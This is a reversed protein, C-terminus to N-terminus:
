NSCTGCPEYGKMIAEKESIISINHYISYCTPSSHYVESGLTTFVIVQSGEISDNVCHSCPRKDTLTSLPAPYSDVKIHFCLPNKHYKAGHETIYVKNYFGDEDVLDEISDGSGYTSRAIDKHYKENYDGHGNFLQIYGSNSQRVLSNEIIGFPLESVYSIIIVGSDDNNYLELHDITFEVDLNAQDFYTQLKTTVYARGFSTTIFYVGEEILTDKIYGSVKVSEDILELGASAADFYGVPSDFEFANLSTVGINQIPNSTLVNSFNQIQEITLSEGNSLENINQLKDVVGFEDFMYTDYSLEVCVQNLVHQVRSHTYAMSSFSFIFLVVMIVFPVILAAEITMSGQNNKNITKICM